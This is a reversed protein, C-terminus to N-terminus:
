FCQASVGGLFLSVVKFYGFFEVSKDLQLPTQMKSKLSQRSSNSNFCNFIAAQTVLVRGSLCLTSSEIRIFVSTPAKGIYLASLM